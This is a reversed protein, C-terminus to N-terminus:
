VVVFDRSESPPEVVDFFSGGRLQVLLKELGGSVDSETGSFPLNALIDMVTSYEEAMCRQHSPVLSATLNQLLNATQASM